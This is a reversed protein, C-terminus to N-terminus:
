GPRAELPIPMVLLLLALACLGILLLRSPRIPLAPRTVEPHGPGVVLLVTLAWLWWAISGIFGALLSLGLVAYSARRANEGLLAKALHGGDLQGFPMLNLLTFLLGIWAGAAVPHLVLVENAAPAGLLLRELATGLLGQGQWIVPHPPAVRAHLEGLLHAVGQTSLVSWGGQLLGLGSARGPLTLGAAHAVAEHASHAIGWAYLPLAVALGALPGSAGLDVLADRSPVDNRVRIVAGLTGIGFPAPLFWPWSVDIGRRRGAWVHGLEHALLTGLLAAAFALGSARDNRASTVLATTAFTLPFLALQLAGRLRPNM